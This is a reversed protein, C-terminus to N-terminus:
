GLASAGGDLAILRGRTRPAAEEAGRLEALLVRYVRKSTVLDFHDGAVEVNVLHRLGETDLVPSPYPAWQDGRSWLSVLRVQGPWSGERLRALFPSGPVM